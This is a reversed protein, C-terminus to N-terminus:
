RGPHGDLHPLVTDTVGVVMGDLERGDGGAVDRLHDNAFLALQCGTVEVTARELHLFGLPPVV